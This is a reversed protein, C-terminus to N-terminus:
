SIGNADADKLRDALEILSPLDSKLVRVSGKEIAGFEELQVEDGDPTYVREGTGKDILFSKSDLTIGFIQLILPKAATDFTIVKTM